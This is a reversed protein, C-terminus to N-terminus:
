HDVRLNRVGSISRESHCTILPFCPLSAACKSSIGTVSKLTAFHAAESGIVGYAFTMRVAAFRLIKGYQGSLLKLKDNACDLLNLFQKLIM